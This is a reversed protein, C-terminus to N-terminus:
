EAKRLTLVTDTSQFYSSAYLPFRRDLVGLADHRVGLVRNMDGGIYLTPYPERGLRFKSNSGGCQTQMIAHGMANVTLFRGNKDCLAFMGDDDFRVTVTDTTLPKTSNAARLAYPQHERLYAVSTRLILTRFAELVVAANCISASIRRTISKQFAPINEGLVIPLELASEAAIQQFLSTLKESKDACVECLDPQAPILADCFAKTPLADTIRSAWHKAATVEERVTETGWFFAAATSEYRKHNIGYKSFYTLGSVHPPCCLDAIMHVARSLSQMAATRKNARLLMVATQFESEFMTRPSPAFAGKGNPYFLVANQKQPKGEPTVACFYHLGRGQQRDGIVDPAAAEEIMIRLDADTFFSAADPIRDKLLYYAARVIGRHVSPYIHKDIKM